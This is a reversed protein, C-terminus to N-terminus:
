NLQVRERLGDDYLDRLIEMLDKDECIVLLNFRNMLNATVEIQYDVWDDERKKFKGVIVITDPNADTTDITAANVTARPLQESCRKLYNCWYLDLDPRLGSVRCMALEHLAHSILVYLRKKGRPM